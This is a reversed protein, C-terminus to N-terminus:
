GKCGSRDGVVAACDPSLVPSVRVGGVDFEIDVINVWTSASQALITVFVTGVQGPLVYLTPQDRMSFSGDQSWTFGSTSVYGNTVLRMGTLVCGYSNTVPCAIEFGVNIVYGSVTGDYYSQSLATVKPLGKGAVQVVSVDGGIVVGSSNAGFDHMQVGSLALAFKKGVAVKTLINAKLSYTQPIVTEQAQWGYFFDVIVKRGDFRISYNTTRNNLDGSGDLLQISGQEFLSSANDSYTNEFVLQQVPRWATNLWTARFAAVEISRQGQIASVKTTPVNLFTVDAPKAITQAPSPSPVSVTESDSGGGGCANLAFATAALLLSPLFKKM